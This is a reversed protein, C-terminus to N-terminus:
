PNQTTHTIPSPQPPSPTSLLQKKKNRTSTYSVLLSFPISNHTDSYAPQFYQQLEISLFFGTGVCHPLKYKKTAARLSIGTKWKVGVPAALWCFMCEGKRRVVEM